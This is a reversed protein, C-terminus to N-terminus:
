LLEDLPTFWVDVVSLMKWVRAPGWHFATSEIVERKIMVTTM